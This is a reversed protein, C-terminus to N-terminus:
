RTSERIPWMDKIDKSLYAEKRSEDDIEWGEKIKCEQMSM